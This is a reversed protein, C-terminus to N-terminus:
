KKFIKAVLRAETVVENGVYAHGKMQCVGKRIPDTIIMKIVLTDGPRVPKKFKCEEIRMFYTSFDKPDEQMSLALIGGTQAMAEVQLVGPMIPDNPFHGEFFPENITVNKIGVVHHKSLETVKDILLFPYRHPLLEMIQQLDYVPKENPNYQPIGQIKIQERIHKKLLKGFEINTSHGPKSAYIRANLPYGILALDGIVDLLKHRAPENNFRLTVNNVIGKTNINERNVNFLGSLHNLKEEPLEEDALVIANSLDGGKILGAELLPEIEHLFCFTRCGAFDEKFNKMNQLSAFQRGIIEAEFDVMVTVQFSPAPVATMEVDKVSDYYHIAKKLTFIHKPFKQNVVKAKELVEYFPLSSGDMIPLEINDIEIILNDIELAVIAAMIHEVTAVKVGDKELTTGRSIDVVLDIDAPIQPKDELDTRVFVIGTDETAPLVKITVEKGSHLGRGKITAPNKITKQFDAM